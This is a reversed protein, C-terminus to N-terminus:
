LKSVNMYLFGESKKTCGNIQPLIKSLKWAEKPQLLSGQFVWNWLKLNEKLQWCACDIASILYKMERETNAIWPSPIETVFNLNAYIFSTFMSDFGFLKLLKLCVIFYLFLPPIWATSGTSITEVEWREEGWIGM